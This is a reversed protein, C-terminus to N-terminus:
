GLELFGDEVLRRVRPLLQRRLVGPDEDLLQGLAAIIQDVTLTGDRAGVLGAEATGVRETRGQRLAAICM